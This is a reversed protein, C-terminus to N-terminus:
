SQRTRTECYVRRRENANAIDAPIPVTRLTPVYLRVDVRPLEAAISVPGTPPDAPGAPMGIQQRTFGGKLLAYELINM